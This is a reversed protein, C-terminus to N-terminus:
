GVKTSFRFRGKYLLVLLLLAGAAFAASVHHDGLQTDGLSFSSTGSVRAPGAQAQGGVDILPAFPNAAPM